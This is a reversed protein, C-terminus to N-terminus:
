ECITQRVGDTFALGGPAGVDAVVGQFFVELGLLAPKDPVPVDLLVIGQGPGGASLLVVTTLVIQTPDVLLGGVDAPGLAAFIVAPAGGAGGTVAVGFRESGLSPPGGITSFSPVFGGTGPTGAGYSIPDACSTGVQVTVCLEVLMGAESFSRVPFAFVGDAVQGLGGITQDWEQTVTAGPLVSTVGPTCGDLFFLDGDCEDSHIENTVCSTQLFYTCTASTNTLSLEIVEGPLAVEPSVSLQLDDTECQQAPVVPVTAVFFAILLLPSKM